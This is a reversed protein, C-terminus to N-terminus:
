CCKDESQWRKIGIKISWKRFWRWVREENALHAFMRDLCGEKAGGFVWREWMRWNLREEWAERSERAQDTNSDEALLIKGQWANETRREVGLQTECALKRRTPITWERALVYGTTLMSRLSASAPQRKAASAAPTGSRGSRRSSAGEFPSVPVSFVFLSAANTCGDAICTAPLHVTSAWRAAIVPVLRSETGPAPM